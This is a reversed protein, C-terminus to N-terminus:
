WYHGSGKPEFVSFNIQVPNSVVVELCAHRHGLSIEILKPKLLSVHFLASDSSTKVSFRRGCWREVLISFFFAFNGAQPIKKELHFFKSRNM